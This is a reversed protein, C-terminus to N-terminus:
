GHPPYIKHDTFGPVGPPVLQDTTTWVSKDNIFHSRELALNVARRLAPNNRFLPRASNFVLTAVSLGPTVLITFQQHRVEQDSRGAPGSPPM